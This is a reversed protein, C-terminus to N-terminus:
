LSDLEKIASEVEEAKEEMEDVTEDVEQEVAEIKDLTNDLEEQEKKGDRCSIVGIFLLAFAIISLRKM